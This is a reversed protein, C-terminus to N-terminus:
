NHPYQGQRVTDKKDHKTTKEQLAWRKELSTIAPTLADQPSPLHLLIPLFPPSFVTSQICQIFFYGIKLLDILLFPFITLDQMQQRPLTSQIQQIETTYM